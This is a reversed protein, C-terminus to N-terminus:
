IDSLLRDAIRSSGKGDVLTQMKHSMKMRKDIDGILEKLIGAVGPIFDPNNRCDGANIMIGLSDFKDAAELQNDALTYTVTPVGLSCLEYLTSGAASVAIDSNKMLDSMHKENIHLIINDKEKKRISDIRPNMMGVVFHFRINGWSRCVEDILKETIGEPDAGGASVLIDKVENRKETILAVSFEERLPAYEPGLLLVTESDDYASYDSSLAFINYNILYDVDWKEANLDDIYAIKVAKRLKSFYQGTVFYSDVILMDPSYEATLRLMADTEQYMETYNTDLCIKEFDDILADANHDATVFVVRQGREKFARAISLCRMVHGVGINKNADARIFIM